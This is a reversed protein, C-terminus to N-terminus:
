VEGKLDISIKSVMEILEEEKMGLYIAESLLMTLELKLKILKEINENKEVSAVFSGKGPVSYIFGQRELERYAKQITNPNITLETALIRVSPLQEDKSLVDSIILKKFNGMLQEYIPVRSKLDLDFM